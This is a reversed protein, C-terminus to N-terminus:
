FKEEWIKPTGSAVAIAGAELAREIHIRNRILGGTIVPVDVSKNIIEIIEPMRAPMIEVVDPKLRNILTISTTVADTDIAFIRQVTLLSHKKASKLINKKTSIIGSPRVYKAIFSIGDRDCNLGGIMEVHIFVLKNKKKICDVYTKLNVISGALIFAIKSDSELAKDIHKEEKIVNILKSEGLIKIFERSSLNEGRQMM